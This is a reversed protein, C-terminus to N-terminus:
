TLFFICTIISYFKYIPVMTMQKFYFILYKLLTFLIAIKIQNKLKKM